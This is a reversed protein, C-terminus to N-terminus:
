LPVLVLYAFGNVCALDTRVHTRVNQLILGSTSVSALPIRSTTQESAADAPDILSTEKGTFDIKASKIEHKSIKAELFIQCTQNKNEIKTWSDLGDIKTDSPAYLKSEVEVKAEWENKKKSRAYIKFPHSEIAQASQDTKITLTTGGVSRNVTYGTGPQIKFQDVAERLRNLKDVFQQVDPNRSVEFTGCQYSDPKESPM